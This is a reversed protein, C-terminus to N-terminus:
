QNNSHNNSMNKNKQEYKNSTGNLQEEFKRKGFFVWYLTLNGIIILFLLLAAKM